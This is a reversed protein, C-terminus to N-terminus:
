IVLHIEGNNFPYPLELGVRAVIRDKLIAHQRFDTIEWDLIQAGLNDSYPVTLDTLRAGLDTEFQALFAPSINSKGIYSEFSSLLYYSISDLNTVLSDERENLNDYDATTLQQRSYVQGTDTDQTVIWTGAEAMIDLQSSSFFDTSREVDDYGAIEVNTLGQHPAVGSRLGALSCCLYIGEISTGASSIWDPWVHRIRRQGFSGSITAYEQAIEDKDLNRWTEFKSPVNIAASPGSVLTLTDESIVQDVVYEEYTWNGFGDSQYNTRYIDGAQVGDTLFTGDEWYVQDYDTGGDPDTVTALATNGESDTTVIGKEETAESNFWATRWRGNEPSSMADVHAAVLDQIQRDQSLPVLGYVDDRGVLQNIVFSYGTLDDTPVGMFKVETGNANELAKYVGLSLPNDRSVPGLDTAVDGIDDITHVHTAYTQLLSRYQVYMTGKYVDMPLLEGNGTNYWTSDYGVIGSQVCIQTTSTEWNVLPAFGIRNETVEMNKRIFLDVALDTGDLSDPVTNALVLTKIAGPQEAVVSVLFRDGKLLGTGGTFSIKVGYNGVQIQDGDGTVTFPGGSDVGNTTTVMFTPNDAYGGGKQVTIIYTSDSPGTYTGHSASTPPTFAMRVSVAWKQGVLFEDASTDGGGSSQSSSGASGASGASSSSSGGTTDFTVKLGRTGISTPAGFAAPIVNSVNDTGSASTVKLRATTADGGTSGQEVEVTYTEEVYGDELGDYASGDAVGEVTNYPGSTQNISETATTASQNDTDASASGVSSPVTENEFGTVYTEIDEAGGRIRVGDGLQVDRDRLTVDRPWSGYSKFNISTARIKNTSGVVKRVQSPNSWYQLWADEMFLKTWDQDVVGGAPRNPWDYCTEQSNDYAGLAIAANDGGETYLQLDYHPGFIMARLPALVPEPLPTVEQFVQIQPLVYM